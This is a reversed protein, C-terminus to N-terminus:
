RLRIAEFAGITKTAAAANPAREVPAANCGRGNTMIMSDWISFPLILILLLGQFPLRGFHLLWEHISKQEATNHCQYETRHCETM